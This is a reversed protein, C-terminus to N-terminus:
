AAAKGLTRLVPHKAEWAQRVQRNYIEQWGCMLVVGNLYTTLHELTRAERLVTEYMQRRQAPDGLDFSADRASWFLARPLTVTGAAPGQLATLDPAVLVPRRQRAAPHDRDLKESVARRMWVSLRVGDAAAARRAQDATQETWRMLYSALTTTM